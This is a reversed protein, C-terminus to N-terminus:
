LPRSGLGYTLILKADDRLPADLIFADRGGGTSYAPRLPEGGNEVVAENVGGEHDVCLYRRSEDGEICVSVKAGIRELDPHAPVGDFCDALRFEARGQPTHVLLGFDTALCCPEGDAALGWYSAYCGDGWGSSFEVVNAGTEPVAVLDLCDPFAGRTRGPSVLPGWMGAWRADWLRRFFPGYMAVIQEIGTVPHKDRHQQRLRESFLDREAALFEAVDADLFGGRGGDVGYGFFNDFPLTAPDQGPLLAMEWARARAKRFRIMACAVREESHNPYTFKALCLVVPYRGPKVRRTFPPVDRIQLTSPECAVIRGSTLVLQAAEVPRVTVRGAHPHEFVEGPRFARNFDTHAATM